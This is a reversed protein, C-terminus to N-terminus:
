KDEELDKNKNSKVSKAPSASSSNTGIQRLKVGQKAKGKTKLPKQRQGSNSNTGSNTESNTRKQRDLQRKVAAKITERRKEIRFLVDSSLHPSRFKKEAARAAADVSFGQEKILAIAFATTELMSRGPKKKPPLEEVPTPVPILELYELLAQPGEPKLLLRLLDRPLPQLTVLGQYVKIHFLAVPSIGESIQANLPFAVGIFEGGGYKQVLLTPMESMICAFGGLVKLSAPAREVRVVEWSFSVQGLDLRIANDFPVDSSNSEQNEIEKAAQKDKSM